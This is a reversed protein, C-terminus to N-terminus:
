WAEACSIGVFKNLSFNSGCIINVELKHKSSTKILQLDKQIHKYMKDKQNPRCFYVFSWNSEYKYNFWYVVELDEDEKNHSQALNSAMLTM